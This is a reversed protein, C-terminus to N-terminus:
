EQGGGKLSLRQPIENLTYYAQAHLLSSGTESRLVSADLEHVFGARLGTVRLDLKRRDESLSIGDVSLTQKEIEEGGYAQHYPYTYSTMKIWQPNALSKADLAQTFLLSFGKSRAEMSIIEFPVRGTPAIRQLGFSRGGLSNWGRNTQGVLMNGNATWALRLAASQLGDRFRFCAGQYVGNVKELFVRSVFSQTFEGVFLQGSFPGFGGETTDCLIDTASMGMKRYPFWVAPLRYADIQEAAEVVSLDQPIREEVRFTSGPQDTFRLADAHGHFVGPQLHILCCTPFWNGQQDTAFVDGFLNVGLGSPSRLGGSVPHLAGKRDVRMSWGRWLNDNPHTGAGISCNLTLWAQGDHDFVPGYAYEHYNGTVGWGKAITRYEDAVGDQNRDVLRTMETRQVVYLDGQHYALGLPEHLGDAFRQFSPSELDDVDKLVWVEGKRIAIAMEGAPLLALGSVELKLDQPLSYTDLRYFDSEEVERGLLGGEQLFAAILVIFFRAKM